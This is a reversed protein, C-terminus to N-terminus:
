RLFELLLENVREHAQQHPFHGVGPMREIRADPAWRELGELLRLSLAPDREGWIVLTRALVPGPRTEPADSALGRAAARYWDLMASLAGPQRLAERYVGFDTEALVDPRGVGVKLLEVVAAADRAGLLAEPLVPLQFFGVYWARLLQPLRRIERRYAAPHPSNLVVLRSVLAPRAAAVTTPWSQPPTIAQCAARLPLTTRSPRTM